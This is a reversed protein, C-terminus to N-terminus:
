IQLGASQAQAFKKESEWLVETVSGTDWVECFHSDFKSKANIQIGQVILFKLARRRVTHGSPEIFIYILQEWAEPVGSTMKQESQTVVPQVFM